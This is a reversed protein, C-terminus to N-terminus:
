SHDGRVKLWINTIISSSRLLTGESYSFVLPLASPSPQMVMALPGTAMPKDTNIIIDIREIIHELIDIKKQREVEITVHEGPPIRSSTSPKTSSLSNAALRMSKTAIKIQTSSKQWIGTHGRSKIKALTKRYV